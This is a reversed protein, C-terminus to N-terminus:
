LKSLLDQIVPEFSPENPDLGVRMFVIKMDSTRIFMNVPFASADAFQFIKGYPELAIAVHLGHKDAWKNLDAETAPAGTRINFGQMLAEVYRVGQDWYKASLEPIEGQEDNCPGCWGAVGSLAILKVSPDNHLDALTFPQLPLGGYGASGKAGDPDVKGIFGINEIIKSLEYGFPGEPYALGPIVTRNKTDDVPAGCGIAALAFSAILVARM